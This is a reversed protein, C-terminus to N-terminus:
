FIDNLIWRLGFYTPFPHSPLFIFTITGNWELGDRLLFNWYFLWFILFNLFYRPPKMKLWFLNSLTSSSLFFFQRETEKKSSANYLIEFFFEFFYFFVMIAENWALYLQFLCLFPSFLFKREMENRGTAYYFIGLFFCFFEFFEARLPTPCDRYTYPGLKFKYVMMCPIEFNQPAM